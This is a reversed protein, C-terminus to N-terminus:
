AMSTNSQLHSYVTSKASAAKISFDDDDDDFESEVEENDGDDGSVSENEDEGDSTFGVNGAEDKDEDEQIPSICLEKEKKLCDDVLKKPQGIRYYDHFVPSSNDEGYEDFVSGLVPRNQANSVKKIRVIDEKSSMPRVVVLTKTVSHSQTKSRTATSQVNAPPSKPPAAAFSLCSKRPPTRAPPSPSGSRSTLDCESFIDCLSSLDPSSCTTKPSSLLSTLISTGSHRTVMQKKFLDVESTAM